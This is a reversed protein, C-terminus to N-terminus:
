TRELLERYATWHRDIMRDVGFRERVSAEAAASLRRRLDGDKLSRLIAEGLAPADRPDVIIGTVGDEVIEPVGGVRTVIVPTGVGMAEVVVQGFSESLSPHVLMDMAAMYAPVDHRYGTFLVNEKLRRKEVEQEISTRDGDGVILLKTNPLTEVVHALADILYLHGKNPFLRGVCGVVMTNGLGLEQRVRECDAERQMEDFDFGLPVVEINTNKQGENETMFRRTAESPVFVRDATRSAWKDLLVHLSTGILHTEDLHHRSLVTVPTRALKAAPVGILSAEFLHVHLVDINRKRLFSALRLVALPYLPRSRVALDFHGYESGMWDPRRPDNLTAFEVRAGKKSLGRAVYKFYRGNISGSSFHCVNM